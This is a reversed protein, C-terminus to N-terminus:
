GPEHSNPHAGAGRHRTGGSHQSGASSPQTGIPSVYASPAPQVVTRVVHRVCTGHELHAGDRCPRFRVKLRVRPTETQAQPTSLISPTTSEATSGPAASVYAIAAGAIGTAVAALAITASLTKM